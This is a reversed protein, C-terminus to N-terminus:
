VPCFKIAFWIKDGLKRLQQYSVLIGLQGKKVSQVNVM